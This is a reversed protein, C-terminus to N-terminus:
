GRHRLVIARDIDTGHQPGLFAALARDGRPIFDDVIQEIEFGVAVAADAVVESTNILFRDCDKTVYRELRRDEQLFPHKGKTRSRVDGVIVVARTGEGRLIRKIRLLGASIGDVYRSVSETHLLKRAVTRYDGYGLSWLRLWNDWAYTQARFYPPSTVVLEAGRYFRLTEARRCLAEGTRQPLADRQALGSKRLLCAIVDRKPPVLGHAECCYKRVYTPSASYTHNCHVSLYLSGPNMSAQDPITVGSAGVNQEKNLSWDVPGHLCGLLCAMLYLATKKTRSLKRRSLAEIDGPEVELIRFLASRIVLIERLTDDHFFLKVSEPIDNLEARKSLDLSRLLSEAQVHTVGALKACTIVFADPAADAGVADRGSLLAELPATGKGAFPDVVREGPQSFEEIAWRALGPPFGGLRPVLTHLSHQQRCVWEATLETSSLHASRYRSKRITEALYANTPMLLAQHGPQEPGAGVLLPAAAPAIAVTM